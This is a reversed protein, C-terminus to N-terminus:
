PTADDDGEVAERAALLKKRVSDLFLDGAYDLLIREYSDVAEEPRGLRELYVDGIAELARAALRHEPHMEVVRDFHQLAMQFEGAEDLNQALKFLALPHLTSEPHQVVLAELEARAQELNRRLLARRYSGFRQLAEPDDFTAENLTLALDLCDNALRDEPAEEALAAFGDIAGEYDGEVLDLEALHYRARSRGVTEATVKARRGRRHHPDVQQKEDGGQTESGAVEELVVRAEDFRDMAALCLGMQVRVMYDPENRQRQRKVLDEFTRLAQEHDGLDEFLILAKLAMADRQLSAFRPQELTTDLSEVAERLLDRRTDEEGVQRAVSVLGEAVLRAAEPILNSQPHQDPLRKLARVGVRARELDAVDGEETKLALRGFELLHEGQDEAYRDAARVAKYADGFRGSQLYATAAVDQVAASKPHRLRLEDIRALVRAPEDARELLKVIKHRARARRDQDMVLLLYEGIAAAYDGRAEELQALEAAFLAERGITQRGQRYLRIAIDIHRHSRFLVAGMRYRTEDRPNAEIVRQVIALAQSPRKRALLHAGLERASTLDDPQREVRRRLLGILKEDRRELRYLNILADEVRRDGPFEQLLEEGVKIAGARDGRRELHRLELMGFHLREARERDPDRIRSSGSTQARVETMSPGALAIAFAIWMALIPHPFRGAPCRPSPYRHM